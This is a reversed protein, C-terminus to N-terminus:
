GELLLSAVLVGCWGGSARFALLLGSSCVASFCGALGDRPLVEVCGPLGGLGGWTDNAGPAPPHFAVPAFADVWLLVELSALRCWELEAPAFRM